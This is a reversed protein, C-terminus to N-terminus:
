GLGARAALKRWTEAQAPMMRTRESQAKELFARAEPIKGAALYIEAANLMITVDKDGALACAKAINAVADDLHNLKFQISALTDLINPDGPNMAVASRAPELAEEYRNQQLLVWALENLAKANQQGRLSRRLAAEAMPYNEGAIHVYAAMFHAVPHEPNIALLDSSYQRLSAVDRLDFAIQLLRILARENAVDLSVVRQYYARAEVLRGALIAREALMILGPVFNRDRELGAFAMDMVERDGQQIGIQVLGLWAEPPPRDKKTLALYSKKAEELDGAALRLAARELDVFQSDTTISELKDLMSAAEDLRGQAMAIRMLGRQARVNQPNAELMARYISEGEEMNQDRLYLHALNLLTQEDADSLSGAIKDLQDSDGRDGSEIMYSMIAVPNSLRGAVAQLYRVSIRQANNQVLAELRERLSAREPDDAKLANVELINLISSINEPWMTLAIRFFEVALAYKGQEYLLCATDNAVRSMWRRMFQSQFWGADGEEMSAIDPLRWASWAERVSELVPEADFLQDRPTVTYFCLGPQLEVGPFRVLEPSALLATRAAAEPERTLWDRLLATPGLMALAQYDPTDFMSAYYRGHEPSSGAQVNIINVVVGAKRAALRLSPDLSGDTILYDRGDLNGIVRDAFAAVPALHDVRAALGHRVTAGLLVLAWVAVLLKGTNYVRGKKRYSRIAAAKITSMRYQYGIMTGSWVAVLLSPALLMVQSGIVYAPSGPLEFLTVVAILVLVARFSYVGIASFLDMPEDLERLMVAAFPVITLGIVLLWGVKPVGRTLEAFYLRVFEGIVHAPGKIDRLAAVRSADYAVAYVALVVVGTLLLSAALVYPSIKPLPKRMLLAIWWVVFGPLVMMATPYEVLALGMLACSAYLCGTRPREIYLAVPYLALLLLFVDFVGYDGRTSFAIMPLSAAAFLSASVGAIIRPVRETQDRRASVMSRSFPIRRVIEYLLWCAAAGAFASLLNFAFGINAVPLAAILATVGSWVPRIVPRFPDLGSFAAAIGAWRGPVSFAPALLAYGALIALLLVGGIRRELSRGAQVDAVQDNVADTSM